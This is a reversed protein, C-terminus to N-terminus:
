ESKEVAIDAELVKDPSLFEEFLSDYEENRIYNYAEKLLAQTNGLFDAM